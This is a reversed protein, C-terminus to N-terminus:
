CWAAPASASLCAIGLFAYGMHMVSSYGIMQKLDRQAMTIFGVIVLINGVVALGRAGHDV